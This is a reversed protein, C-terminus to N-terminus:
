AIRVLHGLLGALREVALKANDLVEKHDLPGDSLGAARNTICSVAAVELGLVAAAEAEKATSMGVADAGCARLARIEAPTEYCPGTVAAYVGALLDRETLGEHTQMSAILRASYPNNQPARAEPGREVSLARWGGPGLVPLHERIAMLSGPGLAPHIGGAANTLVLVKVGLDVMVRVTGTVVVWPHGEYFHLRGSVLVAPVGDWDGVALRGGHGHVTPPVLGPVDGFGVSTTERFDAAAAALGSGLVVAVRPRLRQAEEAFEAFADSM